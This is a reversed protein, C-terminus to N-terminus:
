GWQEPSGERGGSRGARGPPSSESRGAVRVPAADQGTGDRGAGGRGACPLRPAAPLARAAGM